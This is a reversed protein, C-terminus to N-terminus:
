PQGWRYNPLGLPEIALMSFPAQQTTAASALVNRRGTTLVPTFAILSGREQSDNHLFELWIGQITVQGQTNKLDKGIRSDLFMLM